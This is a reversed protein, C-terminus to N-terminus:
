NSIICIIHICIIFVVAYKIYMYTCMLHTHTHTHTYVSINKRVCPAAGDYKSTRESSFIVKILSNVNNRNFSVPRAFCSLSYMSHNTRHIGLIFKFTYVTPLDVICWTTASCQARLAGNFRDHKCRGLVYRNGIPIRKEGEMMRNYLQLGHILTYYYYIYIYYMIYM